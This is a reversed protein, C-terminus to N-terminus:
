CTQATSSSRRRASSHPLFGTACFKCALSCGVQSSVCVTIRKETPIIVSEVFHGDHLQLRNKITGDSSYQSHNITVKPIFFEAALKERLGKPLNSMDNINGAHKNWIWEYVQKARFKPEGWDQFLTELEALTSNRLNKMRCLYKVNRSYSRSEPV